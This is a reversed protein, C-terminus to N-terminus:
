YGGTVWGELIGILQSPEYPKRLYRGGAPLDDDRLRLQGSTVIVKVKPWRISILHALKLGDISGPMQVDTVVAWVDSQRELISIAEIASGAEFANFGTEDIVSVTAWRLLVEDEVILVVPRDGAERQMLHAQESTAHQAELGM